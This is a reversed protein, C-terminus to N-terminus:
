ACAAKVFSCILKHDFPTVHYEPHWQVGVCFKHAPDEIGEIVGDAARANVRLSPAVDKVAQHHSTNVELTQSKLLSFLFSDTEVSVAHGPNTHPPSQEHALAGEVDDPIHQILTGGKLVNILQMGGCIGLIPKQLPWVRDLLEQEFLTRQPKTKVMPHCAQAGYLGPDIDFFGGTIVVGDCLSLYDDILAMEHPLLVPIGGAEVIASCYNQRLAYWPMRSYGGSEEADLTVAILPKM